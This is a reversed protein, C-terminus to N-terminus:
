YLIMEELSINFIERGFYRARLEDLNLVHRKLGKEIVYIKIDGRQRILEGDSHERTRYGSLEETTAEYIVRGSYKRLETFNLIHKKNQGQILYIKRDAGRLLSENLFVKVGLVKPEPMVAKIKEPQDKKLNQQPLIVAGGGSGVAPTEIPPNNGGGAPANPNTSIQGFIESAGAAPCILMSLIVMLLIKKM